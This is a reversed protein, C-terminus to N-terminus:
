EERARRGRCLQCSLKLEAHVVDILDTHLIGVRQQLLARRQEVQPGGPLALPCLTLPVPVKGKFLLHKISNTWAFGQGTRQVGDGKGRCHLAQVHSQLADVAHVDDVHQLALRRLRGPRGAPVGAPASMLSLVEGRTHGITLEPEWITCNEGQRNPGSRSFNRSFACWHRESPSTLDKQSVCSQCLKGGSWREMWM